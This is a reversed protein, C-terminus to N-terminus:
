RRKRPFPNGQLAKGLLTERFPNGRLQMEHIPVSIHIKQALQEFM